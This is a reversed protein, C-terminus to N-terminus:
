FSDYKSFSVKKKSARPTVTEVVLDVIDKYIDKIINGEKIMELIYKIKESLKTEDIIEEKTIERIESYIKEKKIFLKNDCIKNYASYIRQIYKCSKIVFDIHDDDDRNKLQLLFGFNDMISHIYCIKNLEIDRKLQNNYVVDMFAGYCFYAEEAYISAHSIECILMYRNNEQDDSIRFSKILDDIYNLQIIYKEFKNDDKERELTVYNYLYDEKQDKLLPSKSEFQFKNIKEKCLYIISELTEKDVIEVIKKYKMAIKLLSFGLQFGLSDNKLELYFEDKVKTNKVLLNVINKPFFYTHCYFNVDLLESSNTKSDFLIGISELIKKLHEYLTFKESDTTVLLTVDIDSKLTKSGTIISSCGESQVCLLKLLEDILKKRYEVITELAEKKTDDYNLLISSWSSSNSTFLENTKINNSIEILTANEKVDDGIGGDYKRNNKKLYIYIKNHDINIISMSYKPKYKKNRKKSKKSRKKFKKM